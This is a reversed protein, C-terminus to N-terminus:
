QFVFRMFRSMYANFFLACSAVVTIREGVADHHCALADASQKACKVLSVLRVNCLMMWKHKCGFYFSMLMEEFLIVHGCVFVCVYM